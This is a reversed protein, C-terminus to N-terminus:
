PAGEGPREALRLLLMGFGFARHRGLGRALLARFADADDVRLRGELVADPREIGRKPAPADPRAGKRRLPVRAFEVLEAEVLTAAPRLVAPEADPRVAALERALWARYVRARDAWVDLPEAAERPPSPQWSKFREALWADVERSRTRGKADVRAEVGGAAKTRVVPCVRVRFDCLTGAAIHPVDRAALHRVLGAHPHGVRDRLEGESLASYGLLFVASPDHHRRASLEDVAFPQVLSASPEASRAFLQALGAHLLYGEDVSPPLRHRTALRALERRDLELRVLSLPTNM